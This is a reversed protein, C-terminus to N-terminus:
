IRLDIFNGLPAAFFRARLKDFQQLAESYIKSLKQYPRKLIKPIEIADLSFEERNKTFKSQLNYRHSILQSGIRMCLSHCFTDFIAINQIFIKEITM